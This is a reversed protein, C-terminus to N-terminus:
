DLWDCQVPMQRCRGRSFQQTGTGWGWRQITTMKILLRSAWSPSHSLSPSFTLTPSLRAPCKVQPFRTFSCQQTSSPERAQTQLLLSARSNSIPLCKSTHRASLGQNAAVVEFIMLVSTVKLSISYLVIPKQAFASM